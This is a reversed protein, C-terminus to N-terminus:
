RRRPRRPYWRIIHVVDEGSPVFKPEMVIARLHQRGVHVGREQVRVSDILYTRGTTYTVLYDGPHVPGSGDYSLHVVSGPPRPGAM